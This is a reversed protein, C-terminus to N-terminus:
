LKEVRGIFLIANTPNHRIAFIFPHDAIFDKPPAQKPAFPSAGAMMVFASAAAAETGKEDIEVFTKHFADGIWVKQPTMNSFDASSKEFAEKVGIKQLMSKLNLDAEVKFKPIQLNVRESKVKKKLNGFVNATLKKELARLGDKKNPLIFLMAGQNNTYTYEIYKADLDADEAYNLGHLFNSMTDVQVTQGNLLTFDRKKTDHPNFKLSSEWSAKFYLANALVAVTDPSVAGSPLLDKIRGNTTDSVWTNIEGRAKEPNSQFDKTMVESQLQNVAGNRYKETLPANQKVFIANALNLVFPEDRGTSLFFVPPELEIEMAGNQSNPKRPKPKPTKSMTLNPMATSFASLVSDANSNFFQDFHFSKDLNSKTSGSSGIYMLASAYLISLPSVALNGDPKLATAASYLQAVNTDLLQNFALGPLNVNISRSAM